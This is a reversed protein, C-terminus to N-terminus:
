RSLNLLGPCARYGHKPHPRNELQQKIVQSTCPGIDRAWNMFRGPSWDRHAQRSKHIHGTVTVFCGKGHRPHAAVRKGKHM